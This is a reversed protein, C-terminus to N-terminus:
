SEVQHWKLQEIFLFSKCIEQFAEGRAEFAKPNQGNIFTQRKNYAVLTKDQIVKPFQIVIV